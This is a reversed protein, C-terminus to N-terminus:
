MSKVLESATRQQGTCCLPSVLWSRRVVQQYFGKASLIIAMFFARPEALIRREDDGVSHRLVLALNMGIPTTQVVAIIAHLTLEVATLM